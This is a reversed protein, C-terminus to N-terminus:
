VPFISLPALGASGGTMRCVFNSSTILRLVALVSPRVTGGLRSVRASSTISYPRKQQPAYTAKQHQPRSRSRCTLALTASPSRIRLLCDHLRDRRDTEIDCLGNELNM